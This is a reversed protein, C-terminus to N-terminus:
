PDFGRVWHVDWDGIFYVLITPAGVGFPVMPTSGQLGGKICMSASSDSHAPNGMPKGPAVIGRADFGLPKTGKGERWFGWCACTKIM